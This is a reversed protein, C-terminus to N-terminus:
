VPRGGTERAKGESHAIGWLTQALMSAGPDLL